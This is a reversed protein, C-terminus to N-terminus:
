LQILTKKNCTIIQVKKFLKEIKKKLTFFLNGKKM